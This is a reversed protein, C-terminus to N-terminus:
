LQAKVKQHWSPLVIQPSDFDRMLATSAIRHSHTQRPPLSRTTVVSSRAFALFSRHGCRSRSRSSTELSTRSVSRHPICLYYISLSRQSVMHGSFQSPFEITQPKDRGNKQPCRSSNVFGQPLFYSDPSPSSYSLWVALQPFLWCIASVSQWAPCQPELDEFKVDFARAPCCLRPKISGTNSPLPRALPGSSTWCM